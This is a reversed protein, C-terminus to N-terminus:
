SSLPVAEFGAHDIISLYPAVRLEGDMCDGEVTTTSVIDRRCLARRIYPKWYCNVIAGMTM